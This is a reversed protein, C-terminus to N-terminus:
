ISRDYIRTTYCITDGNNEDSYINNNWSGNWGVTPKIYLPFFMTQKTFTNEVNSYTDEKFIRKSLRNFFGLIEDRESLIYISVIISM